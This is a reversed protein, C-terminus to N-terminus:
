GASGRGLARLAEVVAGRDTSYWEALDALALRDDISLSLQVQDSSVRLLGKEVLETVMDRVQSTPLELAAAISGMTVVGTPAAHMALLFRLKVVHDVHDRLFSVVARPLDAPSSM